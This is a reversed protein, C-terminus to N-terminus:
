HVRLSFAGVIAVSILAAVIGYKIARNRGEDQGARRIDADLQQILLSLAEKNQAVARRFENGTLKARRM